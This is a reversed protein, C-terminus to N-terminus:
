LRMSPRVCWNREEVMLGTAKFVEGDVLWAEATGAKPWSSGQAVPCDVDMSSEGVTEMEEKKEEEEGLEQGGLAARAPRSMQVRLTTQQGTADPACCALFHRTVLEYLQREQPDNLSALAM